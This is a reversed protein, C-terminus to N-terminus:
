CHVHSQSRATPVRTTRLFFLKAVPLLTKSILRAPAVTIVMFEIDTGFKSYLRIEAAWQGEIEELMSCKSVGTALVM